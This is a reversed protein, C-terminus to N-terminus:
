FHVFLFLFALIVVVHGITLKIPEIKKYKRKRELKMIKVKEESELKRLRKMEYILLDTRNEKSLSGIKELFRDLEKQRKMKEDEISKLELKSNEDAYILSDGLLTVSLLFIAVSQNGSNVFDISGYFCAGAM